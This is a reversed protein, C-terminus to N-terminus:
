AGAMWRLRPLRRKLRPDFLGEAELLRRLREIRALLEGVGVARIESVRLSFSGRGTFFSPKGLVVVQTGETLKVPAALVLERSCTISLSMDAAPDRLVIFVTSSGPRMNLQTIQGEVWVMGLRDIWGAVRIAVARVPFPNEASQGQPAQAPSTM